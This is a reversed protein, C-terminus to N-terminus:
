QRSPKVQLHQRITEIKGDMCVKIVKSAQGSITQSNELCYQIKDSIDKGIDKVRASASKGSINASTSATLFDTEYLFQLNESKFIRIGINIFKGHDQFCYKSLYKKCEPKFPVIITLPQKENGIISNYTKLPLLMYELIQHNKPITISLTKEPKRKKIKFIEKIAKDSAANAFLGVVTETEIAIVKNESLQERAKEQKIKYM